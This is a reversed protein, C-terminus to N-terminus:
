ERDGQLNVGAAGREICDEAPAGTARLAVAATRTRRHQSGAAAVVAAGGWHGIHSEGEKGRNDEGASVSSSERNATEVAHKRKDAASPGGRDAEDQGAQKIVLNAIGVADVVLAQELLVVVHFVRGRVDLLRRSQRLVRSSRTGRAGSADPAPTLLPAPVELVNVM